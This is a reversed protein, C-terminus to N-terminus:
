GKGHKHSIGNHGPVVFDDPRFAHQQLHQPQLLM